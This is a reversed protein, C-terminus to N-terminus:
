RMMAVPGSIGCARAVGATEVQRFPMVNTAGLSRYVLNNFITGCPWGATSGAEPYHISYRCTFSDKQKAAITTSPLEVTVSDVRAFYRVGSLSM